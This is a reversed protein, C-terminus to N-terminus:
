FSHYASCWHSWNLTRCSSVKNQLLLAPNACFNATTHVTPFFHRRRNELYKSRATYFFDDIFPSSINLKSFFFHIKFIYCHSVFNTLSFQPIPREAQKMDSTCMYLPLFRMWSCNRFSSVERKKLCFHGIESNGTQFFPWSRTGIDKAKPKSQLVSGCNRSAKIFKVWVLDQLYSWYIM